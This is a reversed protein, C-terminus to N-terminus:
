RCKHLNLRCIISDKLPSVVYLGGKKLLPRLRDRLRLPEGFLRERPLRSELRELLRLLVGSLFRRELRRLRDGFRSLREGFLEGSFVDLLLGVGFFSLLALLDTEGEPSFRVSDADSLFLRLAEGLSSLLSEERLGDGLFALRVRLEDLSLASRLKEGRRSM